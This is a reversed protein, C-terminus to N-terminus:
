STASLPCTEAVVLGLDAESREVWNPYRLASFELLTQRFSQFDKALYDISPLPTDDPPCRHPPPACDFDSPCTAKFSFRSRDLIIDLAPATLTLTYDSFDGDVLATLTLLPRGEPDTSWDAANDIPELPVTPISDGGTIRAAIAPDAVPIRNLFHVRLTRPPLVEVYDIGNITASAIIALARDKM